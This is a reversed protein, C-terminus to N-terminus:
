EIKNLLIKEKSVLIMCYVSMIILIVMGAILTYIANMDIGKETIFSRIGAIGALFVAYILIQAIKAALQSLYWMCFGNIIGYTFNLIISIILILVFYFPMIVLTQYQVYFYLASIVYSFFSVMIGIIVPLVVKAIMIKRFSFPLAFLTDLTDMSKENWYRLTLTLAVFGLFITIYGLAGTISPKIDVNCTVYVSIKNSSSFLLIALFAMSLFTLSKIQKKLSCMEKYVIARICNIM